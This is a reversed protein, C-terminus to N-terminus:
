EEGRARKRAQEQAARLRALEEESGRAPQLKRTDEPSTPSSVVAPTLEPEAPATKEPKAKWLAKGLRLRRVAIDLPLLVLAAWLLLLSIERAGGVAPGSVRFIQDASPNIRGGSLQAIGDLTAAGSSGTRYEASLPVVVGATLAAVAQGQADSAIVQALYAGPQQQTLQARYIGPAVEGLIIPQLSGTSGIMQIQINLGSRPSGGTEEARAELILVDGATTSELTLGATSSNPLLWAVMQAAAAPFAQWTVWDRGWRGSMDSTWAISRGLGYQWAAMVVTGDPQTLLVQATERPTTLILGHLMPAADIRILAPHAIGIAPTFDQELIYPRLLVQTEDVLISPLKAASETLFHRGGGARAAQELFAVDSGQGIAISTVTIGEARLQNVLDIAGEQQTTDNGDTITIIHRTPLKSARMYKASETLGDFITIGGGGVQVRELQRIAQERQSGPLPGVVDRAAADFPIVTIEDDDRLLAAIRQAGEVALSLKSRGNEEESMSGSTDILVVVSVPPTIMATPIDMSVPLTAEVPTDRWGGAGFSQPGGVMMLGRGLDHVYASLASVLSDPLATRRVNVLLVADYSILDGIQRPASAPAVVQADLRAVRLAQALAQGEGPSGEILLIRPPGVVFTYAEARNNESRADGAAEVRVVYRSFGPAPAPLRLQYRQPGPRLALQQELVVGAVSEVRLQAATATSSEIDIRMPLEQGVRANAPLEIGTIQVDLDTSPAKLQVVDIPVGQAAAQRAAEQADGLTEVGDSLLVIRRQGESPLMATALQLAAQMNTAVARPQVTVQGFSREDSPQREVQADLGFLVVGANADKPMLVLANQVFSQAEAQQQATVSHSVDLVFVTTLQEPALGIQMGSLSLVLLALLLSRLGRSLLGRRSASGHGRLLWVLPILLLLWLFEPQVFRFM